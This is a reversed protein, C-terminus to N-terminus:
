IDKFVITFGTFCLDAASFLFKTFVPKSVPKSIPKSVSYPPQTTSISFIPLLLNRPFPSPSPGLGNWELVMGRRSLGGHALIIVNFM